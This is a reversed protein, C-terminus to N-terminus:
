RDEVLTYTVVRHNDNRLSHVELQDLEPLRELLKSLAQPTELRDGAVALIVDGVQIDCGPACLTRDDPFLRTLQWGVFRGQHRFPEPGLQRLLYGPGGRLARDIESRYITAPPRPARDDGPTVEPSDDSRGADLHAHADPDPPTSDSPRCAVLCTLWLLRAPAMLSVTGALRVGAPAGRDGGADSM